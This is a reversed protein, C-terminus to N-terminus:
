YIVASQGKNGTSVDVRVEFYFFIVFIWFTIQMKWWVTAFLKVMRHKQFSEWTILSEIYRSLSFGRKGNQNMNGWDMQIGNM